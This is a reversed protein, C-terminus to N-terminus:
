IRAVGNQTIYERFYLSRMVCVDHMIRMRKEYLKNITREWTKDSRHNGLSSRSECHTIVIVDPEPFWGFLRAQPRQISRIEWVEDAPPDLRKLEQDEYIEEGGIFDELTARMFNLAGRLDKSSSPGTPPCQSYAEESMFVRRVVRFDADTYAPVYERLVRRAVAAQITVPISMYTLM